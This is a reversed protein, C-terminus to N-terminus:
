MFYCVRLIGESSNRIFYFISQTLVFSNAISLGALATHFTLQHPTFLPLPIIIGPNITGRGLVCFLAAFLIVISCVLDMCFGFRCFTISASFTLYKSDHFLTLQLCHGQMEILKANTTM